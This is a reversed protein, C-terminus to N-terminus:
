GNYIIDKKKLYRIIDIPVLFMSGFCCIITALKIGVLGLGLGKAFFISLPINVIAGIVSCIIQLKIRGLGNAVNVYISGFTQFVSFMAFIFVLQSEYYQGNPGLWLRIIENFLLSVIIVGLSYLLWMKRLRIIEKHIWQFENKAAAYTVASWLSILLLSFISNGTNYVSNIVTYKTVMSSDFLKNIIVNDTAYLVLCCLQMVFFQLGVNMIAGCYAKDIIGVCSEPLACAISRFMYFLVIANGLVTCFGFIVAFLVLDPTAKILLLLTISLIQLVVTLTQAFSALWSKQYSYSLTRGIGLVFSLCFFANTIYMPIRLTVEMVDTYFLAESVLSLVLFLGAAILSLMLFATKILGKQREYDDNAIARTLENRLGNSIGLDAYNAWASISAITAWLGYLITGLYSINLRLLLLGCLVGIGRLIINWLSGKRVQKTLNEIQQDM